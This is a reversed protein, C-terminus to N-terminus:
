ATHTRPAAGRDDAAVLPMAMSEGATRLQESRRGRNPSPLKPLGLLPDTLRANADSALHATVARRLLWDIPGPGRSPVVRVPIRGTPAVTYYACRRKWIDEVVHRAPMMGGATWVHTIHEVGQGGLLSVAIIRVETM